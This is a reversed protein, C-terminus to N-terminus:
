QSRGGRKDQRGTQRRWPMITRAAVAIITAMIVMTIPIMLIAVAM